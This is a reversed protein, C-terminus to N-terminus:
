LSKLTWSTLSLIVEANRQQVEEEDADDSDLDSHTQSQKAVQALADLDLSTGVNFLTMSPVGGGSM